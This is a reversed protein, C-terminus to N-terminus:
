HRTELVILSVIRQASGTLPCRPFVGPFSLRTRLISAAAESTLAELNYDAADSLDVARAVCSHRHRYCVSIIRM